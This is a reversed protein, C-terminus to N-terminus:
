VAEKRQVLTEDSIKGDKLVIRRDAWDAVASEHSVVLITRQQQDRLTRLTQCLRQSNESDLNGTPEDAFIIAPEMMLARAIAVRQQEGGSLSDPRHQRRDQIELLDLLENLKERSARNGGELQSPLLINEEATLTPILNFAQFIIGIHKRRFRTKEADKMNTLNVGQISVSGATPETLGALVHLLTSKGSGSAGMIVVFEGSPITLTVGNLARVTSNGSRYFKMLDIAEVPAKTTNNDSNM